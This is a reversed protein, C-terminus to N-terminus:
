LCKEPKVSVSFFTGFCRFLSARFSEMVWSGLFNSAPESGHNSVVVSAVRGGGWRGEEDEEKEGEREEEGQDEEM